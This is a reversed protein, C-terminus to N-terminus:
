LSFRIYKISKGEKIYSKEYRTQIMVPLGEDRENYLDDTAEHIMGGAESIERLTYEYLVEDDTKLHLMSDKRFVRRYIELFRRSTLRNRANKRPQKRHPDPFTIWGESFFKEPFFLDLHDIQMRVFLANALKENYAETAGTWIRNGKLDIGIFNKEPFARAMSVTYEGRGCGLEVTVPASGFFTDEQWTPSIALPERRVLRSEIVNPLEGLDQYKKLKPVTM